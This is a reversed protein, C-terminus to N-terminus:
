LQIVQNREPGTSILGIPTELLNSLLIIYKQANEPLESFNSIGVTSTDWGPFHEFIPEIDDFTSYTTSYEIQNETDFVRIFIENDEVFGARQEGGVDCFDISGIASFELQYEDWVGTAVLLEGYETDCNGDNIIGQQDFIGIEWGFELNQISEQLIILHSQGTLNIDM